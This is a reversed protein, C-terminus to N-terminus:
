VLTNRSIAILTSTLRGCKPKPTSVAVSLESVTRSTLFLSPAFTSPVTLVSPAPPVITNWGIPSRSGTREVGKGDGVLDFVLGAGRKHRVCHGERCAEISIDLWCGSDVERARGHEVSDSQRTYDDPGVM